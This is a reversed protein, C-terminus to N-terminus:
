YGISVKLEPRRKSWELVLGELSLWKIELALLEERATLFTTLKVVQSEPPLDLVEALEPSAQVVEARQGAVELQELDAASILSRLDLGTFDASLRLEKPTLLQVYCPVAASQDLCVAQFLDLGAWNPVEPAAKSGATKSVTLEAQVPFEGQVPGAQSTRELRRAYSRRMENLSLGAESLITRVYPATTGAKQALDKVKLFPDSKALAIVRDKISGDM